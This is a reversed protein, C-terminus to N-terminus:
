PQGHVKDAHSIAEGLKIGNGEDDGANLRSLRSSGTTRCAPHTCQLWVHGDYSVIQIPLKM